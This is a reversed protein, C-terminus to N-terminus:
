HKMGSESRENLDAETPRTVFPYRDTSTLSRAREGESKLEIRRKGGGGCGRPCRSCKAKSGASVAIAHSDQRVLVYKEGKQAGIAHHLVASITMITISEGERVDGENGDSDDGELLTKWQNLRNPDGLSQIYPQKSVKRPISSSGSAKLVACSADKISHTAPFLICELLTKQGRVDTLAKAKVCGKQDTTKTVKEDKLEQPLM